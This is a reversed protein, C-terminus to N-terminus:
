VNPSWLTPHCTTALMLPHSPHGGSTKQLVRLPVGNLLKVVVRWRGRLKEPLKGPPGWACVVIGSETIAKRCEEVLIQDTCPGVPDSIRALTRVDKDRWAFLNFVVIGGYGADFAFSVCRKITPDDSEHDATSPNVMILVMVPEAGWTRTLRLRYPQDSRNIPGFTATGPLAQGSCTLCECPQPHALFRKAAALAQQYSTAPKPPAAPFSAFLGTM